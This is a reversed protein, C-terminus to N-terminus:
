YVSEAYEPVSECYGPIKMARALAADVDDILRQRDKPYSGELTLFNSVHNSRLITKAPNLTAVIERAERIIEGRTCQDLTRIFDDNHRYFLTLLSFFEPNVRNVWLATERAHVLSRERGALGLIATVSLKIGAERAKLAEAAMEDSNFGKDIERLTIDDGSELGFYLIRLKKERLTVLQESTKGALSAPSAYSGVRTLGPFVSTLRDLIQVLGEAPYAIADGDALFIRTVFARYRSPVSEIERFVEEVPKIRFPKGKYMGCFTCRNRSCGLTIQFILSRAESPPRFLPEEYSLHPM